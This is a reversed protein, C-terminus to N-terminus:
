GQSVGKKHQKQETIDEMALLILPEQGSVAVVRRANLLITKHGVTPFSHDVEYDNFHTNEPLINELLERLKPIDWQRNGIDYILKKGTDEKSVQFMNYFANNASIIRLDGSLVILPERVTNVLSEAVEQAAKAAAVEQAAKKEQTIDIFNLVLGQIVHRATRYPLIRLTFSRTDKTQVEISKPVLSDLVKNLDEDLKDYLLNSTVHHIPRGIDSEILNFIATTAPTFRRIHLNEDLFITAIQTSNLLNKLDDSTKFLEDIKEQHEANVTMLEENVSQLEERSTELEENASQLEENTSQLEENASKLEENSTEMEERTTYLTEKSLALEQELEAVRKYSRTSRARKTKTSAVPEDSTVTQFMVSCLKQTGALGAIPSVKLDVLQINDDQKVEIKSRSTEQDKLFVTRLASALEMRLGERAMDLINMKLPGTPLELYKGTQGHVYLVDYSQDVVVCAPTYKQLLIKNVIEAINFPKATDGKPEGGAEAPERQFAIPGIQMQQKKLLPVERRQYIRWRKDLASFLDSHKGVTEASGLFLIGDKSLAYYLLHVLRAQLDSNLYILLNRCCILDVKSFPPDKIIDQAALIMRERVERKITYTDETQIFFRRLREPSVDASIGVPYVGSRARGIAADDIDTAFVQIDIGQNLEGLCEIAIMTISYAEEGTACGPVWIRLPSTSARQSILTKVHSKLAVFAEKDRFFGTVSILLDKFLAQAEAPHQELFSAYGAINDIQNVIMRREIRRSVTAPKYQSFDHRTHQRLLLFVKGLYDPRTVTATPREEIFEKKSYGALSVLRAPMESPRLVFDALGGDIAQRPMGDYKASSPEQVMALGGEGKIARLGLTGDTGTGSLIIGIAAIGRDQALARLFFDIPLRLGHPESIELLILKGHLIGMSKNPPIVYANNPKVGMGDKVQHVPIDACKKLLEPLISVHSPDLHSVVVFGMGTDSPMNTFLEQLAELGGASSGIGVIPFGTKGKQSPSTTKRVPETTPSEETKSSAQKTKPKARDKKIAM